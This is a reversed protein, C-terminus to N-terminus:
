MWLEYIKSHNSKIVIWNKGSIHGCGRPLCFLSNYGKPSITFHKGTTSSSIVKYKTLAKIVVYKGPPAIVFDGVEIRM